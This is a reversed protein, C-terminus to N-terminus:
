IERKEFDYFNYYVEELLEYRRKEDDVYFFIVKELFDEDGVAIRGDM